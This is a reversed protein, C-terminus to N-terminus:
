VHTLAAAFGVSFMGGGTKASGPNASGATVQLGVDWIALGVNKGSTSATTDQQRLNSGTPPTVLGQGLASYRGGVIGILMESPATTTLTPTPHVTQATGVNALENQVDIGTAGAWVGGVVAMLATGSLDLAVAGSSQAVGVTRGFVWLASNGNGNQVVAHLLTWGAPTAVVDSTPDLVECAILAYGGAAISPPLTANRIGVAASPDADLTIPAFFTTTGSPPTPPTVSGFVQAFLGTGTLPDFTGDSRFMDTPTQVFRPFADNPLWIQEVADAGTQMTQEQPIANGAARDLMDLVSIAWRRSVPKGKDPYPLKLIATTDQDAPATTHVTDEADDTNGSADQLTISAIFDGPESVAVYPYDFAALGPNTSSFPSTTLVTLSTPTDGNGPDFTASTFQGSCATPDIHVSLPVPGVADGGAVSAIIVANLGTGSANTTVANSIAPNGVVVGNTPTIRFDYSHSPLLPKALYTSAKVGEAMVAFSGTGSPSRAEIMYTVPSGDSTSSADWNLRVSASDIVEADVNAPDSITVTGDNVYPKIIAYDMDISLSTRTTVAPDRQGLMATQFGVYMPVQPIILSNTIPYNHPNGSVHPRVGDIFLDLLTPEWIFHLEHWQTWDSIGLPIHWQDGPKTSGDANRFHLNSAGSTPDVTAFTYWEWIDEEDGTGPIAGKWGNKVPWLLLVGKTNKGYTGRVRFTYDGYLQQAKKLLFGGNGQYGGGKYEGSGAIRSWVRIATRRGSADPTATADTIIEVNSPLRPSQLAGGSSPTDTLSGLATHSDYVTIDSKDVFDNRYAPGFAM